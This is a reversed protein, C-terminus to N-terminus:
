HAARFVQRGLEERVGDGRRRARSTRTQEDSKAILEEISEQQEKALQLSEAIEERQISRVGEYQLRLKASVNPVTEANFITTVLKRNNANLSEFAKNTRDGEGKDAPM